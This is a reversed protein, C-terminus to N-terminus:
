RLEWEMWKALITIKFTKAGCYGKEPNGTVTVTGSGVATNPGYTITVCDSLDKGKADTIRVAPRLQGGTYYYKGNGVLSLKIKKDTISILNKRIRVSRSGTYLNEKAKVTLTVADATESITSSYQGTSIKKTGDNVSYKLSKVKDKQFTIGTVAVSIDESSLNKRVVKYVLAPANSKSLSGRFRGKGKLTISAKDTVTKNGSCSVTYDSGETMKTQTGDGNRFYVTLGPKAGSPDYEASKEVDLRIRGSAYAKALDAPTISFTYTLTGSYKGIGTIVLSYSGIKWIRSPDVDSKGSRFTITYDRGEKLSSYVKPVQVAGTYDAKTVASKGKAGFTVTFQKKNLPTGKIQLAVAKAGTYGLANGERAAINVTKKGATLLLKGLDSEQLVTGDTDVGTVVFNQSFREIQVPDTSYTVKNIVLKTILARIAAKGDLQKSQVTFTKAATVSAKALMKEAPAADIAVADTRGQYNGTYTKGSKKAELVVYYRGPATIGAVSKKLAADTYYQITYASASVKSEGMTVTAKITQQANKSKTVVGSPLTVQLQDMNAQTITFYKTLKKSSKYNGKGQIIIQPRKSASVSTDDARCANINNRYTVTYDTGEVLIQDNDWVIVEPVLAKGTYVCSAENLIEVCIDTDRGVKDKENKLWRAYLTLNETVTDTAMNWPKKLEPDRYWGVFTYQDRVPIGPDTLLGGQAVKQDPLKQQTDTVFSVKRGDAIVVTLDEARCPYSGSGDQLSVLYDTNSITYTGPKGIVRLQLWGVSADADRQTGGMMSLYNMYLEKFGNGADVSRAIVGLSEDAGFDVLEFVRGDYRIEDQMAYLTYPKQADTRKLTVMVTIIEGHHVEIKNNGNAKLEFAFSQEGASAAASLPVGTLLMTMALILCLIKRIM